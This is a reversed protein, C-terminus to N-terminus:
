SALAQRFARRMEAPTLYDRFEDWASTDEAALIFDDATQIEGRMSATCDAIFVGVEGKIDGRFAPTSM